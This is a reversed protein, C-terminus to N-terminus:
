NHDQRKTATTRNEISGYYFGKNKEGNLYLDINKSFDEPGDIKISRLKSMFSQKKKNNVENEFNKILKYLEALYEEPVNEIENKILEKTTM